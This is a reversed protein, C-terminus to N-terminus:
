RRLRGPWGSLAAWFGLLLGIATGALVLSNRGYRVPQQPLVARESLDFLLAHFLGRSRIRVEKLEALTGELEGVLDEAGLQECQLTLHEPPPQAQNCAQLLNAYTQLGNALKANADAEALAAFGREAWFNALAMATQPDSDRISLEWQAQRREMTFKQDLESPDIEIGAASADRLVQERVSTSIIVAAAGAISKDEEFETLEPVQTYDVAIHFRAQAEFIPPRQWHIIWGFAGGLIAVLTVLWWRRFIQEFSHQPSLDDM